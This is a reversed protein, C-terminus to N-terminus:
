FPLYKWVLNINKEHVIHVISSGFLTTRPKPGHGPAIHYRSARETSETQGHTIPEPELCSLLISCKGPSGATLFLRLGQTDNLQM